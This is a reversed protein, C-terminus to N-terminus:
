FSEDVKNEIIFDKGNSCFELALRVEPDLLYSKERQTNSLRYVTFPSAHTYSHVLVPAKNESRRGAHSVAAAPPEPHEVQGATVPSDM